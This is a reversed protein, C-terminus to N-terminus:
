LVDPLFQSKEVEKDIPGKDIEGQFCNHNLVALAQVM